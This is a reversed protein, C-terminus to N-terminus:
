RLLTSALNSHKQRALQASSLKNLPRPHWLEGAPLEVFAVHNKDVFVIVFLGFYFGLGFFSVKLLSLGRVGGGGGGGWWFFFGLLLLSVM